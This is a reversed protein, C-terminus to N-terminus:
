WSAVESFEVYMDHIVAYIMTGAVTVLPLYEIMKIISVIYYFIYIIRRSCGRMVVVM